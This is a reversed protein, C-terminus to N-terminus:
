KKPFMQSHEIIKSLYKKEPFSVWVLIAIPKDTIDKRPFKSVNMRLRGLWLDLDLDIM